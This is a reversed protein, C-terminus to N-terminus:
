ACPSLWENKHQMGKSTHQEIIIVSFACAIPQFRENLMTRRYGIIVGVSMLLYSHVKRAMPRPCGRLGSTDVHLTDM